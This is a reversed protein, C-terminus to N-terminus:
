DCNQALMQGSKSENEQVGKDWAACAQNLDGAQQHALGKYYYLEDIFDATRIAREFLDIARQYEGKALFYIGKNRYAWGNEPSLVISRNIDELARELSDMQLYVYGRNNLFYPEGPVEDLARNIEVLARQLQTSKLAILSLLNFANANKPELGLVKDILADSASLNGTLYHITAINILTEPNDPLLKDSTIFAQFALDYRKMKTLVLGKYFFVFSSDPSLLEIAEMDDLANQFQGIAEYAYARNFLADKFNQDRAIAQNYDLIADYPHDLEMKAVGRNNLAGIYDADEKISQDYLNIAEEYNENALAKNGMHFFRDRREEARECAVLACVALVFLLRMAVFCFFRCSHICTQFTKQTLKHNELPVGAAPTLM